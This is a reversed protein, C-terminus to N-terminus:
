DYDRIISWDFNSLSEKLQKHDNLNFNYDDVYFTTECIAPGYEPPDFWTSPRTLIVEDVVATVTVERSKEDISIDEISLIPTTMNLSLM